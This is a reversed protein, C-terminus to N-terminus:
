PHQLTLYAYNYEYNSVPTNEPATRVLQRGQQNKVLMQPAGGGDYLIAKTLGMEKLIKALKPPTIGGKFRYQGEGVNVLVLSGGSLSGAASRPTARHPYGAQGNAVIDSHNYYPHTYFRLYEPRGVAEYLPLTKQNDFLLIGGGMAMKYWRKSDAGLGGRFIRLQGPHNIALTYRKNIDKGTRQESRHYIGPQCNFGQDKCRAGIMDGAPIRGFFCWSMMAALNPRKMVTRAYLPHDMKDSFLIKIRPFAKPHILLARVTQLPNAPTKSGQEFQKYIVGPSVQTTIVRRYGLPTKLAKSFDKDPAQWSPYKRSRQKKERTLLKKQVGSGQSPTSSPNSFIEEPLIDEPGIGIQKSPTSCSRPQCNCLLLLLLLPGIRGSLSKL